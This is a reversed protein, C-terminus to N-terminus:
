RSVASEPLDCLVGRLLTILRPVITKGVDLVEQHSVDRDSDVEDIAENTISSIGLVRMGAHLAVLVEPATSMGVADAGMMRLMRVEAPTEYAPGSQSIYVGEQLKIGQRAAVAFVLKRLESDYPKTLPVFRPGLSDDNHGMLPNFGALGPLNIHDKIVMLDGAKFDPNLGGAANTVILTKIGLMQMVRIPFGVAEIPIGEYFHVRGQMVMVPRQELHGIVLRGAHGSVSGQPFNPIDSYPVICADEVSDALSGLGSGLIMGIQPKVSIAAQVVKAAAEFDARTLTM